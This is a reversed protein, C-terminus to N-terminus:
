CQNKSLKNYIEPLLSTLGEDYARAVVDVTNLELLRKNSCINLHAMEGKLEEKDKKKAFVDNQEDQTLPRFNMLLQEINWRNHEVDSLLNIQKASLCCGNYDISRM